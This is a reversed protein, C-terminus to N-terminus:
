RYKNIEKENLLSINNNMDMSFGDVFMLGLGDFSIYNFNFMSRCFVQIVVKVESSDVEKYIGIKLTKNSYIKVSDFCESKIDILENYKKRKLENLKCNLFHCIFRSLKTSILIKQCNCKGFSIRM